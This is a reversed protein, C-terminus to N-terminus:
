YLPHPFLGHLAYQLLGFAAAEVQDLHFIATTEPIRDTDQAESHFNGFPIYSTNDSSCSNNGLFHFIGDPTHSSGSHNRNQSMSGLSRGRDGGRHVTSMEIRHRDGQTRASGSDSDGAWTREKSHSMDVVIWNM